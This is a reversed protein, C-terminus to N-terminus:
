KGNLRFRVALVAHMCHMFSSCSDIVAVVATDIALEGKRRAAVNDYGGSIFTFQLCLECQPYEARGSKQALIATNHM